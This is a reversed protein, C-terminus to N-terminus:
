IEYDLALSFLLNNTSNYTIVGERGGKRKGEKKRRGEEEGGEREEEEKERWFAILSQCKNATTSIRHTMSMTYM